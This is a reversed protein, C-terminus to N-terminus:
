QALAELRDPMFGAFPEEGEIEVVPLSQFGLVEKVYHLSKEDEYVNIETFTVNNDNLNKKTFNCAMCNPKSYVTVKKTM